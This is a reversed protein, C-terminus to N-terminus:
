FTLHLLDLFSPANRAILREYLDSGIDFVFFLVSGFLFLSTFKLTKEEQFMTKLM